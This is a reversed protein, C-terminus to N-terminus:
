GRYNYKNDERLIGFYVMLACLIWSLIVYM